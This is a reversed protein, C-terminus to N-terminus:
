VGYRTPVACPGCRGPAPVYLSKGSIDDTGRSTHMALNLTKAAAKMKGALAPDSNRITTGCDLSGLVLNKAASSALRAAKPGGGGGGLGLKDPKVDLDQLM